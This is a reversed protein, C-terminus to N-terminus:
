QTKEAELQEKQWQYDVSGEYFREPNEVAWIQKHIIWNGPDLALAKRWQQVAERPEGKQLLVLGLRFRLDAEQFEPSQVKQQTSPKKQALVEAEYSPETLWRVLDQQFDGDDIHSGMPGKVLQGKENVLLVYPIAKLGYLNGVVNEQDVLTPFTADAAEHWPRAVEAGQADMAISIM